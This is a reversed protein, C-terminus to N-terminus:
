IFFFSPVITQLIDNFEIIGWTIESILDKRDPMWTMDALLEDLRRAITAIKQILTIVHSYNEGFKDAQYKLFTECPAALNHFTLGFDLKELCKDMRGPLLAIEAKISDAFRNGITIISDKKM